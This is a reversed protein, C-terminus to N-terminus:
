ASLRCCRSSFLSVAVCARTNLGTKGVGPSNFILSFAWAGQTNDDILHESKGVWSAFRRPVKNLGWYSMAVPVTVIGRALSSRLLSIM